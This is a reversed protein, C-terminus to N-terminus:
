RNGFRYQQIRQSLSGPGTSSTQSSSTDDSDYARKKESSTANSSGRGMRNTMDSFVERQSGFQSSQSFLLPSQSGSGEGQAAWRHLTQQIGASPLKRYRRISKPTPAVSAVNDTDPKDFAKVLEQKFLYGEQRTQPYLVHPITPLSRSFLSHASKNALAITFVEVAGAGLLKERLAAFVICSPADDGILIIKGEVLAPDILAISKQYDNYDEATEGLSIITETRVFLDHYVNNTNTAVRQMVEAMPKVANDKNYSPISTMVLGEVGGLLLRSFYTAVFGIMKPSNNSLVRLARGMELHQQQQKLSMSSLDNALAVHRGHAAVDPIFVSAIVM